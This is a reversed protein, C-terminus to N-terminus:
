EFYRVHRIITIIIIFILFLCCDQDPIRKYRVIYPAMCVYLVRHVSMRTAAMWRSLLLFSANQASSFFFFPVPHALRVCRRTRWAVSLNLCHHVIWQDTGWESLVFVIRISCFMLEVGGFISCTSTFSVFSFVCSQSGTSQSVYGELIIACRQRHNWPM